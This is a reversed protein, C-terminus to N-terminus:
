ISGADNTPVRRALEPSINGIAGREADGGLAVDSGGNPVRAPSRSWTSSFERSQRKAPPFSNVRDDRNVPEADAQGANKRRPRLETVGFVRAKKCETMNPVIEQGVAIRRLGQMALIKPEASRSLAPRWDGDLRVSNPTFSQQLVAEMRDTGSMEM